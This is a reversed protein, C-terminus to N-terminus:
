LRHCKEHGEGWSELDRWRCAGRHYRHAPRAGHRVALAEPWQYQDGASGRADRSAALPPDVPWWQRRSGLQPRLDCGHHHRGACTATLDAPEHELVRDLRQLSLVLDLREPPHGMAMTTGGGWPVVALEERHALALVAALQDIDGPSVVAWPARGDVNYADLASMAQVFEAGVIASLEEIVKSADAM